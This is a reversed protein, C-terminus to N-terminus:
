ENSSCTFWKIKRFVYTNPTSRIAALMPRVCASSCIPDVSGATQGKAVSTSAYEAYARTRDCRAANGCTPTGYTPISAHKAAAAQSVRAASVKSTPRPWPHTAKIPSPIM